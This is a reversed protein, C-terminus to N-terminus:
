LCLIVTIVTELTNAKFQDLFIHLYITPESMVFKMMKAGLIM